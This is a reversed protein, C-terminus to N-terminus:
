LSLQHVKSPLIPSKKIRKFISPIQHRQDCVCRGLIAEGNSVNHVNGALHGCHPAFRPCYPPLLTLPKPAAPGPSNPCSQPRTYEEFLVPPVLMWDPRSTQIYKPTPALFAHPHLFYSTIVCILLFKFISAERNIVVLLFKAWKFNVKRCRTPPPASCLPAACLVPFSGAPTLQWLMGVPPFLLPRHGLRSFRRNQQFVYGSFPNISWICKLGGWIKLIM